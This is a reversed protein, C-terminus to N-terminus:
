RKNMEDSDFKKGGTSVDALESMLFRYNHLRRNAEANSRTYEELWKRFEANVTTQKQAAKKRAKDILLEDASLTINRM